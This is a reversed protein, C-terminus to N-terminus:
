KRNKEIYEEIDSKKWFNKHGIKSPRPFDTTKLWVHITQRAVGFAKAVDKAEVMKELASEKEEIDLIANLRNKIQLILEKDKMGGLVADLFSRVSSVALGTKDKHASTLKTRRYM